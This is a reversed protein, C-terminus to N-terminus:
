KMNNIMSETENIEKFARELNKKYSERGLGLLHWASPSFSSVYQNGSRGLNLAHCSLDAIHIAAVLAQSTPADDPNHHYAIATSFSTPFHWKQALEQGVQQHNKGFWQAEKDLDIVSTGDNYFRSYREIDMKVFLLRGIDHLVGCMFAENRANPDGDKLLHKTLVGVSFSHMWFDNMSLASSDTGLNSLVSTALLLQQLTNMGLMTIAEEVSTIQRAFGYFPSNVLKLTRATLAQDTEVIRAIEHNGVKEQTMLMTLQNIVVPASPLDIQKTMVDDLNPM